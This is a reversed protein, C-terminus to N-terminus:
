RHAPWVCVHWNGVPVQPLLLLQDLSVPVDSESFMAPVAASAVSAMTAAPAARNNCIRRKTQNECTSSRCRRWMASTPSIATLAIWDLTCILVCVYAADRKSVCPYLLCSAHTRANRHRTSVEDGLLECLTRCRHHRRRLRHTGKAAM